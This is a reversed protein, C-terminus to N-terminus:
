ASVARGDPEDLPETLDPARARDQGHSAHRTAQPPSQRATAGYLASAENFANISARRCEGLLLGLAAAGEQSLTVDGDRSNNVLDEILAIVLYSNHLGDLTDLFSHQKDTLM